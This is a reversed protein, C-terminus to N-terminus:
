QISFVARIEFRLKIQQFDINEAPTDGADAAMFKANRQYAIPPNYGNDIESIEIIGGLKEGISEVLYTAKEKAAQLAKIKLDKRYKEIDTHSYDNISTSQIGKPDLYALMQNLSNLDSLKLKYQKSALFDKNKDKKQNWYWYNYSAVNEIQLDESPIGAKKVANQLEKELKDIPVKEKNDGLYEKLTIGLYIEDPTIEQEASGTVEIKKVPKEPTQAMTYYVCFLLIGTSFFLKKMLM